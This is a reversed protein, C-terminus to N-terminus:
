EDRGVKGLGVQVMNGERSSLKKKKLAMLGIQLYLHMYVKPHTAKRHFM